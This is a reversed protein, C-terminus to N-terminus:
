SAKRAEPAQARTEHMWDVMRSIAEQRLRLRADESAYVGFALETGAPM